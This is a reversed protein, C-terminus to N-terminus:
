VTLWQKDLSITYVTMSLENKPYKGVTLVVKDWIIRQPMEELMSLYATLDGYSGAIKIEMGHKYLTAAVKKSSKSGQEESSKGTKETVFETPSLTTLSILELKKNQALIAELFAQMKEPPVMAASLKQFKEDIETIEQKASTMAKNNAADPDVVAGTATMSTQASGLASRHKEIEGLAREKAVIQPSIGYSYGLFLVAFVLSGVLIGRERPLIENFKHALEQPTM